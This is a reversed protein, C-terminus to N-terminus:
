REPLQLSHYPWEEEGSQVIGSGEAVGWLAQAGSGEGTKNGKEPCMGPGWHREQISPGLVSRL